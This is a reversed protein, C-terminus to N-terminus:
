SCVRKNSSFNVSCSFGSMSRRNGCTRNDFNEPDNMRLILEADFVKRYFEIAADANRVCLYPYVERIAPM